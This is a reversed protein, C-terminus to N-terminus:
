RAYIAKKTAFHLQIIAAVSIVVFVICSEASAAGTDLYLFADRYLKYILINTADGPGGHTMIDILGFVQFFAYIMNVFLLFTTTPSLMPFTIDWFTRWPGAGDVRAADIFEEPINQLGALFFVINYGLMNWTAAASVVLLALSGNMMWNLLDGGFVAAIVFPVIGTAPAFMLAWIAGAVAPSLAYTWILAIQYFGKGRIKQNLLHAVALSISLGCVMVFGAFILTAVASNRFDPSSFLREYNRLGVFTTNTGFATSAFFSDQVSQLFPFVLFVVIVAVSPLILVYPLVPHGPFREEQVINAM